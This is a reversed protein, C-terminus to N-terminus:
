LVCLVVDRIVTVESTIENRVEFKMVDKLIVHFRNFQGKQSCITESVSLVLFVISQSIQM